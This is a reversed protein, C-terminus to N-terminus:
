FIVRVTAIIEDAGRPALNEIKWAKGARGSHGLLILLNPYGIL